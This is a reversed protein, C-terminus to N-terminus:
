LPTWPSRLETECSWWQRVLGGCGAEREAGLPWAMSFLSIIVPLSISIYDSVRLGGLPEGYRGRHVTNNEAQVRTLAITDTEDRATGHSKFSHRGCDDVRQVGQLSPSHWSTCGSLTSSLSLSLSTGLCKLISATTPLFSSYVGHLYHFSPLDIYFLSGVTLKYGHIANKERSLWWSGASFRDRWNLKSAVKNTAGLRPRAESSHQHMQGFVLFSMIRMMMIIWNGNSNKDLTNNISSSHKYNNQRDRSSISFSNVNDSLSRERSFPDTRQRTLRPPPCFKPCAPTVNGHEIYELSSSRKKPSAWLGDHYLKEDFSKRKKSESHPIM